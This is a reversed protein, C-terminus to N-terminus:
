ASSCCPTRRRRPHLDMCGTAPSVGEGTELEVFVDRLVALRRPGLREEVSRQAKRWLLHARALISRGAATLAVIRERRDDASPRSAVWRSKELVRLNRGLATRELRVTRALAWQHSPHEELGPYSVWTVQPHTKLWKALGLSNDCHSWGGSYCPGQGALGLRTETASHQGQLPARLTVLNGQVRHVEAAVHAPQM